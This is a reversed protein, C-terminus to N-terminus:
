DVDEMVVYKEVHLCQAIKELMVLYAYVNVMKAFVLMVAIM